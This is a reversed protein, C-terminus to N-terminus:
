LKIREFERGLVTHNAVKLDVSAAALNRGTSPVAPAWPNLLHASTPMISPVYTLIEFEGTLKQPEERGEEHFSQTHMPLRTANVLM